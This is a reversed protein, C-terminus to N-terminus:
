LGLGLALSYFGSSRLRFSQFRFSSVQFKLSKVRLDRAGKFGQFRGEVSEQLLVAPVVTDLQLVPARTSSTRPRRADLSVVAAILRASRKRSTKRVSQACLSRAKRVMNPIAHPITDITSM